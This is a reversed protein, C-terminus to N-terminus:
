RRQARRGTNQESKRGLACRPLNSLAGFLEKADSGVKLGTQCDIGNFNNGRPVEARPAVRLFGLQIEELNQGIPGVPSKLPVMETRTQNDGHTNAGKRLFSPKRVVDQRVGGREYTSPAG